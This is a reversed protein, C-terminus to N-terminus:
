STISAVKRSWTLDAPQIVNEFIWKGVDERSIIYGIAKSELKGAIPDEMGARLPKKSEPGDSYLSGRIITFDEGSRILHNEMTRKDEHAQKLMVHYLPVMALPIDRQLTSLGTSSLAIVRPQGQAVGRSRVDALVDVLVKMADGCLDPNDNGFKKLSFTSGLSSCVIDVLAGPSAPNVLCRALTDADLANGQELRLNAPSSGLKETLKSPTRCLAICTHGAALSRRLASLGCGGTAGLFLITKQSM